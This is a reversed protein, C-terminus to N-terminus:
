YTLTVANSVGSGNTATVSVPPLAAHAPMVATMTTDNVVTFSSAGAVSYVSTFYKGSITVTGGTVPLTSPGMSTIVPPLVPLQVLRSGSALSSAAQSLM